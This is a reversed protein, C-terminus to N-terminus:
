RRAESLVRTERVEGEGGRLHGERLSFEPKQLLGVLEADQAVALDGDDDEVAAVPEILIRPTGLSPRECSGSGKKRECERDNKREAERWLSYGFGMALIARM